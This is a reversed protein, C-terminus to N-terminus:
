GSRCGSCHRDVPVRLWPKLVACFPESHETHSKCELMVTVTPAAVFAAGDFQKWSARIANPHLADDHAKMWCEVTGIRTDESIRWRGRFFSLYWDEMGQRYVARGGCQRDEVRAFAGLCVQHESCSGCVRVAAPASALAAM